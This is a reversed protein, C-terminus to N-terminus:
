QFFDSGIHHMYNGTGFPLASNKRLIEKWSEKSKKKM